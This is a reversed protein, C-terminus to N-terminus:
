GTENGNRIWAYITDEPVNLLRAADKATLDM